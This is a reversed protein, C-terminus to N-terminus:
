YRIYKIANGNENIYYGVENYKPHKIKQSTIGVLM